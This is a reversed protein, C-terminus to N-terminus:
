LLMLLLLLVLYIHLELTFHIYWDYWSLQFQNFIESRNEMVDSLNIRQRTTEKNAKIFEYKTTPNVKNDCNVGDNVVSCVSQSCYCRNKHQPYFKRPMKRELVM